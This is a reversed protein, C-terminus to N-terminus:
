RIRKVHNLILLVAMIIVFCIGYTILNKIVTQNSSQGPMGSYSSSSPWKRGSSSSSSGSSDEAEDSAAASEKESSESGSNKGDRGSGGGSFGGMNFQGMAKINLHSADVLSSSDQRQGNDTSPITGELQGDISEARLKIM